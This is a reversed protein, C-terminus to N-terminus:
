ADPKEQGVLITLEDPLKSLRRRLTKSQLDKIDGVTAFVARRSAPLNELEQMLLSMTDFHGIPFTKKGFVTVLGVPIPHYPSFKKRRRKPPQIEVPPKERIEEPAKVPTKKEKDAKPLSDGSPVELLIFVASM